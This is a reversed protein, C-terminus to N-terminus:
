LWGFAEVGRALLVVEAQGAAALRAGVLCGIGGAGVIAVRM